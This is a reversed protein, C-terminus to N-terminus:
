LVHSVTQASTPLADDRENVSCCIASICGNEASAKIKYSLRSRETLVVCPM